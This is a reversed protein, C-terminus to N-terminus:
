PASFGAGQVPSKSSGDFYPEGYPNDQKIQDNYTSVNSPRVSLCVSLVPLVIDRETHIVWIDTLGASKVHIPAVIRAFFRIKPTHTFEIGATQRKASLLKEFLSYAPPRWSIGAWKRGAHAGFRRASGVM